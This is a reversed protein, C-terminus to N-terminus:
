DDYVELFIAPLLGESITAFDEGIEQSLTYGQDKGNSLTLLNSFNGTTGWADVWELTVLVRNCILINYADLDTKIWKHKLSTTIFINSTLLSEEPKMDEAIKRFNLRFRISDWDNHNIRFSFSKLKVPCEAGEIILGRMRGKSSEFDGWGTYTRGVKNSGLQLTSSNASVEIQNLIYEEPTLKVIHKEKFDISSIPVVLSKYGVYSFKLTDRLYELDLDISFEGNEYSIFGKNKGVISITVYSLEEKTTDDIVIGTLSQTFGPKPLILLLIFILYKVYKGSEVSNYFDSYLNLNRM